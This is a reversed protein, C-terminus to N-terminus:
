VSSIDSLRRLLEVSNLAIGHILDLWPKPVTLPTLESCAMVTGFWGKHAHRVQLQKVFDSLQKQLTNACQKRDNSTM